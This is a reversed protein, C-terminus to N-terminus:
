ANLHFNKTVPGEQGALLIKEKPTLSPIYILSRNRRVSQSGFSQAALAFHMDQVKFCIAAFM